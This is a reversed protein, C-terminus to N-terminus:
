LITALSASCDSVRRPFHHNGTDLCIKYDAM